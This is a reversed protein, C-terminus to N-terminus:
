FLMGATLVEAYTVADSNFQVATCAEKAVGPAARVETSSSVKELDVQDQLPQM